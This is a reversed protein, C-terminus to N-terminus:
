FLEEHVFRALAAVVGDRYCSERTVANNTMLGFHGTSQKSDKTAFVIDCALGLEIGKHIHQMIKKPLSMRITSGIGEEGKTNVIVIWGSDFWEGEVEHLGGELGVGFDATLAKLAKRARNKAGTVSETDSMPQDSVESKVDIGEIEWKEDPFVSEFAKKTAEIKVRNKSGVAVKMM